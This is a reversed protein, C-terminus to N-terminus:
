QYRTQQFGRYQSPQFPPTCSCTDHARQLARNKLCTLLHYPGDVPVGSTDIDATKVCYRNGFSKYPYDLLTM